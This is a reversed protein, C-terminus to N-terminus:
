FRKSYSLEFEFQHMTNEVQDPFGLVSTRRVSEEPAYMMAFNLEGKNALKKTFGFTLHTEIVAPALTNLTTQQIPNKGHSVGVRWTWDNSTQWQYGLKVVTMDDWGFGPGNAGGFCYSADAGGISPCNALRTLSRGIADVKSYFIHDVDLVLASKSSMKYALGLRITSPYDLEGSNPFLGRYDDFESMNIQTTYAGAFALDPTLQTQFGLRLGLGYAIDHGNNTLNTGDVSHPVFPQLGRAAFAQMAIVPAVGVSTKPNIKMSYTPAIFLQKLDIGTPAAGGNWPPTSYDTNMGGAGYVALTFARDSGLRWNRAFFPVVHYDSGSEYNGPLVFGGGMGTAPNYETIERRPSFLAAGVEYGSDIWVGGAPNGSATMPGQPMALGAGAMGKSKTGFGHPIMGNTAWVNGAFFTFALFIFCSKILRM